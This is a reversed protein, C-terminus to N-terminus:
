IIDWTGDEKDYPENGTGTINKGKQKITITKSLGYNENSITIQNSRENETSNASVVFTYTFTTSGDPNKESITNELSIWETNEISIKFDTLNSQTKLTFKQADATLNEITSILNLYPSGAGTQIVRITKTLGNTTSLTIVAERTEPTNNSDVEFILLNTGIDTTGSALRLWDANVSVNFPVNAEVTFDISNDQSTIEYLDSSINISPQNQPVQTIILEEKLNYQENIFLIHATREESTENPLIQFSYTNGNSGRDIIWNANQIQVLYDVNSQITVNFTEGEGKASYTNPSIQLIPEIDESQGAQRITVTQRMNNKQFIIIAERAIDENNPAIDFYLYKKNLGRSRDEVQTIWDETILVNFDVNTYIAFDLPGGNAGIEYSDKALILADQQLQTISVTQTLNNERDIFRIEAYRNDYSDNPAITFYHTYTSLSRSADEKVWDVNPMELEYQTNSRLEVKITEGYSGVIYESQTLVLTPHNGDQYVVIEESLDNGGHLTIIGQRSTTSENPGVHFDLTSSTLGRSKSLPTIWSQSESDIDYTVTVNSQLEISFNQEQDSLEVKNSTLILADKQKQTITLIRKDEGYNITISANREDYSQNEQVKIQLTYTGAEGSSPSVSVWDSASNDVTITWSSTATLTLTETGGTTNFTPLKNDAEITISPSNPSTSTDEGACGQWLLLFMCLFPVICLQKKM